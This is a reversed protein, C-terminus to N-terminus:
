ASRIFVIRVSKRLVIGDEEYVINRISCLDPVRKATLAPASGDFEAVAVKLNKIGGAYEMGSLICLWIEVFVIWHFYRKQYGICLNFWKWCSCLSEYAVQCIRVNQWLNVKWKSNRLLWANIVQYRSFWLHNKRISCDISWSLCICQGFTQYDKHKFAHIFCCYNELSTGSCFSWSSVHISLWSSIGEGDSTWCFTNWVRNTLM